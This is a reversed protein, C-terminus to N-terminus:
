IGPTGFTLDIFFFGLINQPETLFDECDGDELNKLLDTLKVVTFLKTYTKM